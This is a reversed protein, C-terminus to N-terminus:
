LYGNAPTVSECPSWSMVNQRSESDTRTGWPQIDCRADDGTISPHPLDCIAIAPSLSPGQSVLSRLKRQSRGRGSRDPRFIANQPSQQGPTKLASKAHDGSLGPVQPASSRMKRRSRTPRHVRSSSIAIQSLENALMPGPPMRLRTEKAIVSACKPRSLGTKPTLRGASRHDYLMKYTVHVGYPAHNRCVDTVRSEFATVALCHCIGIETSTHM